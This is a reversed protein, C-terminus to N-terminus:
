TNGEPVGGKADAGGSSNNSDTGCGISAGAVEPGNPAEVDVVALTSSQKVFKVLPGKFRDQYDDSKAFVKTLDFDLGYNSVIESAGMGQKNRTSVVFSLAGDNFGKTANYVLKVNPTRRIGQFHNIFAACGVLVYYVTSAKGEHM